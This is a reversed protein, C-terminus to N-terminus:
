SRRGSAVKKDKNKRYFDMMDGNISAEKYSRTPSTAPKGINSRSVNSVNKKARSASATPNNRNKLKTILRSIKKKGKAIKDDLSNKAEGVAEKAQDIKGYVTKNYDSEAKDSRLKSDNFIKVKNKWDKTSKDLEYKARDRNYDDSNAYSKENGRKTKYANEMNKQSTEAAKKFNDRRQREDAGLANDIKNGVKQGTKKANGYVYQWKGNVWNRATYLHGKMEEGLKGHELFESNEDVQYTFKESM